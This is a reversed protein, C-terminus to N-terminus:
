SSSRSESEDLQDDHQHNECEPQQQENGHKRMSVRIDLGRLAEVIHVLEHRGDRHVSM